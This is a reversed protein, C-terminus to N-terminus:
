VRTSAATRRLPRLAAKLLPSPPAPPPSVPALDEPQLTPVYNSPPPTPRVPSPPAPPLPAAALAQPHFRLFELYNQLQTIVESGKFVQNRRPEALIPSGTLFSPYPKPLKTIEQIYIKAGSPVMDMVRKDPALNSRVYLIYQFSSDM